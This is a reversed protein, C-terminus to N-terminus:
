DRGERSHRDRQSTLAALKAEARIRQQYAAESGVYAMKGIVQIQNAIHWLLGDQQDDQLSGCKSRNADDRDTNILCGVGVVHDALAIAMSEAEESAHSLFELDDDSASKMDFHGAFFQILSAADPQFRNSM